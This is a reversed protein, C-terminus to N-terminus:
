FSTSITSRNSRLSILSLLLSILSDIFSLFMKTVPAAPDIPESNTLCIIVYWGFAMVKNSIFEVAIKWLIDVLISALGLIM